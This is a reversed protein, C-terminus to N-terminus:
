RQTPKSGKLWSDFIMYKSMTEHVWIAPRNTGQTTNFQIYYYIGLYESGQFSSKSSNSIPLVAVMGKLADFYGLEWPMWKSNTANESFAYILSKCNKMREQLVLATEKTVNSRNLLPDEIWDVYVSYGLDEIELKLGAVIEADNSSHSLFIDYNKTRGSYTRQENIASNLILKARDSYSDYVSGFGGKNIQNRARSRLREETFLAM